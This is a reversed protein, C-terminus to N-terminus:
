RLLVTAPLNESYILLSGIGGVKRLAARLDVIKRPEGRCGSSSIFSHFWVIGEIEGTSAGGAFANKPKRRSNEIQGRFKRREVTFKQRRPLQAVERAIAVAKGRPLAVGMFFTDRYPVPYLQRRSSVQAIFNLGPIGSSLRPRWM